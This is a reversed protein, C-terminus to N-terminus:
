ARTKTQKERLRRQALERLSQPEDQGDVTEPPPLFRGGRARRFIGAVVCIALLVLLGIICNLMLGM